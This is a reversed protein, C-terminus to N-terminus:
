PQPMVETVGCVSCRVMAPLAGCVPCVRLVHGTYTYGCSCRWLGVLSIVSRCNRCTLRPTYAVRYFKWRRLVTVALKILLVPTALLWLISEWLLGKM